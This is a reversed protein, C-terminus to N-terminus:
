EKDVKIRGRQMLAELIGEFVAVLEAEEAVDIIDKISVTKGYASVKIGGLYEGLDKNPDWNDM